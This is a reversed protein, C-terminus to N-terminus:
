GPLVTETAFAEDTVPDGDVPFSFFQNSLYSLLYGLVVLNNSISNHAHFSMFMKNIAYPGLVFGCFFHYYIYFNRIM